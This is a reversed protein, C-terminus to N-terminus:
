IDIFNILIKVPIILLSLNLIIRLGEVQLWLVLRSNSSGGQTYTQSGDEVEYSDSVSRETETEEDDRNILGLYEWTCPFLGYVFYATMFNPLAMKFLFESTYNDPDISQMSESFVTIIALGILTRILRQPTSSERMLFNDVHTNAFAAGFIAGIMTFIISLDLFSYEIGIKYKFGDELICPAQVWQHSIRYNNSTFRM